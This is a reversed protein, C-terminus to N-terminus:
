NRTVISSFKEWEQAFLWSKPLPLVPGSIRWHRSKVDDVICHEVNRTENSRFRFSFFFHFEFFRQVSFPFFNSIERFDEVQLYIQIYLHPFLVSKELHYIRQYAVIVCQKAILIHDIYQPFRHLIVRYAHLMLSLHLRSLIGTLRRLAFDYLRGIM